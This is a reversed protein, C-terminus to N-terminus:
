EDFCVGILYLCVGVGVVVGVVVFVVFYLGLDGM